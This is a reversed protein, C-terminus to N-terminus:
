CNLCEFHAQVLRHPQWPVQFAEQSYCSWRLIPSVSSRSTCWLNMQVQLCRKSVGHISLRQLARIAACACTYMCCYFRVLREGQQLAREYTNLLYALADNGISEPSMLKTLLAADITHRNKQLPTGTAIASLHDSSCALVTAIRAAAM